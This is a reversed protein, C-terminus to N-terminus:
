QNTINNIHMTFSLILENLQVNFGYQSAIRRFQGPQSKKFWSMDRVPNEDSACKLQGYALILVLESCCSDLGGHTLNM